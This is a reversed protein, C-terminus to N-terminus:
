HRFFLSNLFYQSLTQQEQIWAEAWSWSQKFNFSVFLILIKNKTALLYLWNFNRSQERSGWEARQHKSCQNDGGTDALKLKWDSKAEEDDLSSCHQWATLNQPFLSSFRCSSELKWHHYFRCPFRLYDIVFEPHNLYIEKLVQMCNVIETM